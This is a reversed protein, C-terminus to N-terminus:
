RLKIETSFLILKKIKKKQIQNEPVIHLTDKEFDYNHATFLFTSSHVEIKYLTAHSKM